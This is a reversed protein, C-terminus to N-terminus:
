ENIMVPDPKEIAGDEPKKGGTLELKLAEKIATRMNPQTLMYEAIKDPELGFMGMLMDMGSRDIGDIGVTFHLKGAMGTMARDLIIDEESRSPLATPLFEAESLKPNFPPTRYEYPNRYEDIGYSAPVSDAGSITPVSDSPPTVAAPKPGAISDRVMKAEKQSECKVWNTTASMPLAQGDSLVVRAEGDEIIVDRVTHERGTRGDIWLGQMNAMNYDGFMYDM